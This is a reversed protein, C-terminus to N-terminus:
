NRKVFRAGREGVHNSRTHVEHVRRMTVSDRLYVALGEARDSRRSADDDDSSKEIAAPKAERAV